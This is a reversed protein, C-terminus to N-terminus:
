TVATKTCLHRPFQRLMYGLMMRNNSNMIEVFNVKFVDVRRWISVTEPMLLRLITLNKLRSRIVVTCLWLRRYRKVMNTFLEWFFRHELNTLCPVSFEAFRSSTLSRMPLKPGNYQTNRAIMLSPSGCFHVQGQAWPNGALRSAWVPIIFKSRSPPKRLPFCRATLILLSLLRPWLLRSM